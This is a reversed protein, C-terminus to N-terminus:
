RLLLIHLASSTGPCEWFEKNTFGPQSDDSCSGEMPMVTIADHIIPILPSNKVLDFNFVPEKNFTGEQTVSPAGLSLVMSCFILAPVGLHM